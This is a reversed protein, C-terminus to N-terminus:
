RGRARRIEELRERLAAEGRRTQLLARGGRGRPRPGSRLPPRPPRAPLTASAAAWARRPTTARARCTRRRPRAHRARARARPGAGIAEQRQRVQPRPSLYIAAQAARVYGRAPRRARGGPGGGGGGRARAPRRQRHGRPSSSWAGCSLARNRAGRSCSRSTTSAPTETRGRAAEGATRHGLDRGAAPRRRRRPARGPRPLRGPTTPSCLPRGPFCKGPCPFGVQWRRRARRDRDERPLDQTRDVIPRRSPRARPGAFAGVDGCRGALRGVRRVAVSRARSRAGPILPITTAAENTATQPSGAGAEARVTM